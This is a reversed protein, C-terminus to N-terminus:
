VHSTPSCTHRGRGVEVYEKARFCENGKEKEKQSHVSREAASLQVNLELLRQTLEPSGKLGATSAAAAAAGADRSAAAAGSGDEREAEALAEDVQTHCPRTDTHPVAAHRHM